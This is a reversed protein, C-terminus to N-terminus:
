HGPHIRALDEPLLRLEPSILQHASLQKYAIGDRAHAGSRSLMHVVEHALVRGLARGLLLDAKLYDAGSMASRVVRAVRDCAIQGFPQVRGDVSYSYGLSGGEDGLNTAHTLVCAGTFRLVVLEDSATQEAEARSKFTLTVESQKMINQFERKMEAVSQENAPTEFDLVVTLEEAGARCAFAALSFACISVFRM